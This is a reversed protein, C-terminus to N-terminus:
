RLYKGPANSECYARFELPRLTNCIAEFGPNMILTKFIGEKSELSALSSYSNLFKKLVKWGQPKTGKRSLVRSLADIKSKALDGYGLELLFLIHAIRLIFQVRFSFFSFIDGSVKTIWTVGLSYNRSNHLAVVILVVLNVIQPKALNTLIQFNAEIDHVKAPLMEWNQEKLIQYIELTLIQYTLVPKERNQGKGIQTLEDLFSAFGAMDGLESQFIAGLFITKSYLKENAKKLAAASRFLEITKQLAEFAEQNEGLFRYVIQLTSQKLIQATKTKPIHQPSLEPFDLIEAAIKSPPKEPEGENKIRWREELGSLAKLYLRQYQNVESQYETVTEQEDLVKDWIKIRTARLEDAELIKLEYELFQLTLAFNESRFAKDKGVAVIKSAQLFLGLDILIEASEVLLFLDSKPSKGLYRINRILLDFLYNATDILQRQSLGKERMRREIHEPNWQKMGELEQFLLSYSAKTARITNLLDLKSRERKSLSKILSFVAFIKTQSKRM